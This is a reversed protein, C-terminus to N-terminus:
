ADRAPRGIAIEGVSTEDYFDIGSAEAFRESDGSGVACAALGMATASLYITQMVVGVHKLVLSYALSQYKWAIRGMRATLVLLIQMTDARVGMGSAADALLGGGAPTLSAVLELAHRDGAYRYIGRALGRCAGAVVYFELEYLSGGSPYPRAVYTDPGGAPGGAGFVDVVRAVRYLLEGIEDLDPPMRDYHRISSRATQVAALPPDEREIREWDPQTLSVAPGPRPGPLAPVIPFRGAFRYTGGSPARHRGARSRAHFLLDHFEWVAQPPQEEAAALAAPLVIAATLLLSVLELMVELPLGVAAALAGDLSVPAALRQILGAARPDEVVVACPGHATEALFADRERRLWAFRSLVVEQGAGAQAGPHGEPGVLTALAHGDIAVHGISPARSSV